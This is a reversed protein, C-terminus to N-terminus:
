SNKLRRYEQLQQNLQAALDEAKFGFTDPFGSEYGTLSASIQRGLRYPHHESTYNFGVIKNTTIGNQAIAIVGFGSVEQWLLRYKRFLSCFEFGEGTIRLYSSGPLIHVLSIACGIGFFITCLYGRNDGKRIVLIGISTFMVCILLLLFIKWQKPHYTVGRILKPM